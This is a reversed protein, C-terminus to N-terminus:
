RQQQCKHHVDQQIGMEAFQGVKTGDNKHNAEEVGEAEEEDKGGIIGPLNLNLEIAMQEKLNSKQQLSNRGALVIISRQTFPCDSHIHIERLQDNVFNHNTHILKIINLVIVDL